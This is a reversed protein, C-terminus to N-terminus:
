SIMRSYLEAWAKNTYVAMLNSAPSTSFYGEPYLASHLVVRHAEQKLNEFTVTSENESIAKLIRGYVEMKAAHLFSEQSWKLAYAADKQVKDAFSGISSQSSEIELELFKIVQEIQKM